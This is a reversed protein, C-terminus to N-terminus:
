SRDGACPTRSQPDCALDVTAGPRVILDSWRRPDDAGFTVRVRVLEPLRSESGWVTRWRREPDTRTAGYYAFTASTAGGILRSPTWGIVESAALDIRESLEPAHFLMLDGSGAMMLRYRQVGGVPDGQPPVSYFDFRRDTGYLDMMPRSGTLFAVPRMAEIRQRLIIQAAMVESAARESAAMDRTFRGTTTLGGLLLTASMALIALAVLSEILTVGAEDPRRPLRPALASM